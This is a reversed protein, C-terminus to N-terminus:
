NYGRWGWGGKGGFNNNPSLTEKQRQGYNSAREDAGRNGKVGARPDTGLIDWEVRSWLTGKLASSSPCERWPLCSCSLLAIVGDRGAGTQGLELGFVWVGLRVGLM